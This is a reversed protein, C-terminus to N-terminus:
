GSQQGSNITGVFVAGNATSLKFQMDRGTKVNKELMVAITAEQGPQLEPASSNITEFETVGDGVAIMAYEGDALTSNVPPLIAGVHDVYAYVDGALRIESFTVKNVSDNKVYVFIYEGANLGDSTPNGTAITLSEFGDHATSTDGDTADYGLIKISEIQPSGSIQASSFFGQSFVFIISGGVVAIAVLLLTAIVPAVARRSTMKNKTHLKTM